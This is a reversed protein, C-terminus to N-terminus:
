PLLKLKELIASEDVDTRKFKATQEKMIPILFDPGHWEIKSQGEIDSTDRLSEDQSQVCCLFYVTTKEVEISKHVFRGIRSGLYDVIEATIGFEEMLGRELAKELSENPELTERMLIYFDDLGEDPWYGSVNAKTFHHCCVKNKDNLVVAGVSLHRPHENNGQFYNSM